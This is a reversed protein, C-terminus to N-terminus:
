IRDNSPLLMSLLIFTGKSRMTIPKKPDRPRNVELDLVAKVLPLNEGGDAQSGQSALRRVSVGM